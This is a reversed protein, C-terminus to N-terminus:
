ISATLKGLVQLTVLTPMEIGDLLLFAPGFMFESIPGTSPSNSVIIRCELKWTM